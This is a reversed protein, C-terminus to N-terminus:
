LGDNDREDRQRKSKRMGQRIGEIAATIIGILVLSLTIAALLAVANWALQTIQYLEPM